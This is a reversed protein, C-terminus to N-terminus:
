IRSGTPSSPAPGTRRSNWVSRNAGSKGNASSRDTPRTINLLSAPFGIPSISVNETRIRRLPSTPLPTVRPFFASARRRENQRRQSRAQAALARRVRRLFQRGVRRAPFRDACLVSRVRIGGGHSDARVYRFLDVRRRACVSNVRVLGDCRVAIFSRRITEDHAAEPTVQFLSSSRTIIRSNVAPSLPKSFRAFTPTEATSAFLVRSIITSIASLSKM